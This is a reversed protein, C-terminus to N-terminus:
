DSVSVHPDLKNHATGHMPLYTPHYFFAPQALWFHEEMTVAKIEAEWGQVAKRGNHLLSYAFVFGKGM